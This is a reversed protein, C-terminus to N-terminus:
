STQISVLDIAFCSLATLSRQQWHRKPNSLFRIKYQTDPPSEKIQEMWSVFNKFCSSNMFELERLDVIVATAKYKQAESHVAKLFSGLTARVRMDATGTFGVVVSRGDLGAKANFDTAQVALGPLPIM